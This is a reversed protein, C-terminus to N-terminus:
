ADPYFSEHYRVRGAAREGALALAQFYQPPVGEFVLASDARFGFRGYYGPDGLVVCGRAGLRELEILGARVLAKGVGHRQDDPAVALPALGYWHPNGDEIRVASFAIHGAIRGDIDAVLSLSLADDARLADVIDQEIHGSGPQSAFASGIVARIANADDATETRIWM